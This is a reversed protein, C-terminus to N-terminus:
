RDDQLSQTIFQGFLYFVLPIILNSPHLSYLIGTIQAVLFPVPNCGDEWRRCLGPTRAFVRPTLNEVGEEVQNPSATLPAPERMVKRLPFRHVV